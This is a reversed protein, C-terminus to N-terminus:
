EEQVPLKVVISLTLLLMALFTATTPFQGMLSLNYICSEAAFSGFNHGTKDVGHM